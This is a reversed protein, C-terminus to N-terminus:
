ALGQNQLWIVKNIPEAKFKPTELTDQSGHGASSLLVHTFHEKNGTSTYAKALSVVLQKQAATGVRQDNYGTEILLPRPPFNSVWQLLLNNQIIPNNDMGLFEELQPWYVVPTRCIAASVEPINAM